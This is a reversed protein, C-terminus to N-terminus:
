GDMHRWIRYLEFIARFFDVKKLKSGRVDCWSFLPYEYLREEVSPLGAGRHLRKFRAIIEVDFIWKSVFPTDFAKILHPTNRFLKAGCQTDYVALDLVLSAFTSFIRGLYHRVPNREITRGLLRVRAGWIADIHSQDEMIAHMQKIAELPTALDADWYGIYKGSKDLAHLVGQRVAEAKGRNQPLCMLELMPSCQTMETIVRVTDDTSGDDVFLFKVDSHQSVFALFQKSDLRREENYCPVVVVVSEGAM